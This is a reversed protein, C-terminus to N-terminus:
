GTQSTKLIRFVDVHIYFTDYEVDNDKVIYRRIIYGLYCHILLYQKMKVSALCVKSDMANLCLCIM